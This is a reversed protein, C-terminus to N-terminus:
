KDQYLSKRLRVLAQELPTYGLDLQYSSDATDQDDQNASQTKPKSNLSADQTPQQITSGNMFRIESLFNQGFYLHIREKLLGVGYILQSTM